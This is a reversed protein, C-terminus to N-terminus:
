TRPPLLPDTYEHLRTLDAHCPAPLTDCHGVGYFRTGCARAADLDTSSDGVMLTARPDAGERRVIDALIDAKKAPAGLIDSFYGDLGRKGLVARLEDQPTGSAVYLPARGHNAALWELAGPIAPAALVQEVVQDAFRRSLEDVLAEDPEKDLFARQFHRFKEYRSVGGHAVHFDVLFREAEPGWQAVCAAFARTKADVSDLLVGDCDFVVLRLAASV